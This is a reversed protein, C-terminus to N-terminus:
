STEENLIFSLYESVNKKSLRPICQNFLSCSKCSKSVSAKPTSGSNILSHMENSIQVVRQRLECSIDFYERHREQWYFIAGTEIGISWMEELIMAQATVQLRDCDSAKRSGRKYEIPLAKFLRSEILTKKDKVAPSSPNIEVIDAIGSLGLTSSAIHLSRLSIVDSGNTERLFPNDVNKHLLEGETTLHNDSWLQEVHILAWQRPCFAYHQIGSLPIMDEESYMITNQM